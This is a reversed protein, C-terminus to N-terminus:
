KKGSVLLVPVDVHHIFKMVLGAIKERHAVIILVDRQRTSLRRLLESPDGSPIETRVALGADRLQRAKHQIYESRDGIKLSGTSTPTVQFLTVSAGFAQILPQSFALVCDGRPSGDLPVIINHYAAITKSSATEPSSPHMVLVPKPMADIVQTAASGLLWRGVTERGHSAMAILLVDPQQSAYSIINTAPDGDLMVVNAKVGQERIYWAIKNLYTRTWAEEQVYWDEPLIFM